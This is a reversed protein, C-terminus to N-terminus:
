DTAAFEHGQLPIGGNPIVASDLAMAGFLAGLVAQYRTRSWAPHYLKQNAIAAGEEDNLDGANISISRARKLM